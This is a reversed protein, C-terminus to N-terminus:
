LYLSGFDSLNFVIPFKSTAKCQLPFGFALKFSISVQSNYKTERGWYKPPSLHLRFPHLLQLVIYTPTCVDTCLAPTFHFFLRTPQDTLEAVTVRIGAERGADAKSICRSVALSSKAKGLKKNGHVYLSLMKATVAWQCHIVVVNSPLRIIILAKKHVWFCERWPLSFM